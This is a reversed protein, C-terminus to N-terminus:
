GQKPALEDGLLGGEVQWAPPNAPHYELRQREFYQVTLGTAPDTFEDSIPYGFLAPSERYSIGWDGSSDM